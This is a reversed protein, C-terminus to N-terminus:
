TANHAKKGQVIEALRETARKVVAMEPRKEIFDAPALTGHRGSRKWFRFRFIPDTRKHYKADRLKTIFSGPVEIVDHMRGDSGMEGILTNEDGIGHLSLYERLRVGDDPNKYEVFWQTSTMKWEEFVTM